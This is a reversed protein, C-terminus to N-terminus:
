NKVFKVVETGLKFFYTGVSLQSITVDAANTVRGVLVTQGLLNTINFNQEVDSNTLVTIRDSALNPYIKVGTKQGFNQVSVVKSLSEKGDADIQRLRYYNTGIAPTSHEYSYNSVANTTGKGKVNSISQFDIGNTSHQIDFHANNKESATSWEILNANGRNKASVKQWEVPLVALSTAVIFPSFTGTYNSSTWTGNAYGAAIDADWTTGNWHGVTAPGNAPRGSSGDLNLATADATFELTVTGQTGSINWERSVVAAPNSMNTGLPNTITPKVYATFTTPAAPTIKVPSYSASSVGIPFNAGASTVSQSLAGTITNTVFYNMSSSGLISASNGLIFNFAGLIIKGNNFTIVGNVTTIAPITKDSGGSITLNSYASPAVSGTVTSANLLTQATTAAYEVTGSLTLTRMSILPQLGLLKLTGGAKLDFTGAEGTSANATRSAVANGVDGTASSILTAGSRITIDGQGETGNDAAIRNTGVDLTGAVIDWSSAKIGTVLTATQGSNMNFEIAFTTTSATNGAAWEGTPTIIRSDGVVSLKGTSAATITLPTSPITLSATISLAATSTAVTNVAGFYCSLKGNLSLSFTVLAVKADTGTTASTTGTSIFLNKCSENAGLTATHGSQVYVDNTSTPATSAAVWQTGNWTQWHAATNWTVATVATRFDGITQGWALSPLLMLVFGLAKMSNFTTSFNNM